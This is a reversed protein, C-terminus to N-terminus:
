VAGVVHSDTIMVRQQDPDTLYFVKHVRGQEIDTVDLGAQSWQAHTGEIDAVQLDFPADGPSPDGKQLIIHTGGAVETISVDATKLVTRMGLAAYYDHAAEPDSVDMTVHGVWVPPREDDNM